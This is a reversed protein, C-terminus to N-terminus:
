DNWPPNIYNREDNMCFCLGFAKDRCNCKPINQFKKSYEPIILKDLEAMINEYSNKNKWYTGVGATILKIMINRKKLFNYLFVDCLQNQTATLKLRQKRPNNSYKGNRVSQKVIGLQRLTYDDNSALDLVYQYLYEPMSKIWLDPCIIYDM